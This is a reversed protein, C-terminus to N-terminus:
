IGFNKQVHSKKSKPQGLFFMVGVIIGYVIYALFPAFSKMLYGGYYDINQITLQPGRIHIEVEPMLFFMVPHALIAGIVILLGQKQTSSCAWALGLGGLFGLALPEVLAESGAGAEDLLFAFIGALGFCLAAKYLDISEDFKLAASISFAVITGFAVNSLLYQLVPHFHAVAPGVIGAALAGFVAGTSIFAICRFVTLPHTLKPLLGRRM